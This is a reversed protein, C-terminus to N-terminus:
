LQQKKDRIPEHLIIKLRRTHSDILQEADSFSSLSELVCVPAAEMRAERKNDTATPRTALSQRRDGSGRSERRARGGARERCQQTLHCM